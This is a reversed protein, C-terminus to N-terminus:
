PNIFNMSFYTYDAATLGVGNRDKSSIRFTYVRTSPPNAPNLGESDNVLVNGVSVAVGTVSPTVAHSVLTLGTMGYPTRSGTDPVALWNGSPDEVELYYVLEGTTPMAAGAGLGISCTVARPKM